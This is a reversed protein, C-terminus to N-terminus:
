GLIHHATLYRRDQISHLCLARAKTIQLIIAYSGPLTTTAAVHFHLM